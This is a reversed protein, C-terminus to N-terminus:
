AMELSLFGVGAQRAIDRMSANVGHEAIVDRAVSILQSYNKKAEARM